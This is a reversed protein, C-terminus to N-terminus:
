KRKAPPRQCVPCWYTSRGGQASKAIVGTKCRPCREGEREYVSFINRAGQTIYPLTEGDDDDLVRQFSWRIANLLRRAQPVTIANAPCEPHIRARWLVEACHINGLGAVLAQDMLALKVPRKTPSLIRCLAAPSPPANLLDPGLASFPPQTTVNDGTLFGMRSFRRADTFDVINGDDLWLSLAHFRPAPQTSRRRSLNGTMGLHLYLAGDDVLPLALHKGVRLPSAFQAHLLHKRLSQASSGALMGAPRLEVRTVTRGTLWRALHRRHVEVEPLEPM